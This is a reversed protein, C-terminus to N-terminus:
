KRQEDLTKSVEDGLFAMDMDEKQIPRSKMYMSSVMSRKSKNFASSSSSSEESCAMLSDLNESRNLM